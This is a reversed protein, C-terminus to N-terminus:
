CHRCSLRSYITNSYSMRVLNAKLVYRKLMSKLFHFDHVELYFHTRVGRYNVGEAWDASAGVDFSYEPVEEVSADKIIVPLLVAVNSGKQAIQAIPELSGFKSGICDLVYPVETAFDLIKSVVDPEKYNFVEKAGFSKLLKFHQPSSTALLNTFGWHRSIQLAYQGM